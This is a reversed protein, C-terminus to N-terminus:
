LCLKKSGRSILREREEHVKDHVKTLKDGIEHVEHLEDDVVDLPATNPKFDVFGDFRSSKSLSNFYTM